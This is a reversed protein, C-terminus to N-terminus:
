RPVKRDGFRRRWLWDSERVAQEIQSAAVGVARTLVETLLDLSERRTITEAGWDTPKREIFERAKRHHGCVYRGRSRYTPTRSTCQQDFATIAECREVTRAEKSARTM